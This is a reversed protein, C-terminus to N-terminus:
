DAAPTSKDKYAMLSSIFLCILLLSIFTFLNFFIANSYPTFLPIETQGKYIPNVEALITKLHFARIITVSLIILNILLSSITMLRIMNREYKKYLYQHLYSISM